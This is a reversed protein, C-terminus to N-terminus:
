IMGSQKALSIVERFNVDPVLKNDNKKIAKTKTLLSVIKEGKYYNYDVAGFSVLDYLIKRSERSRIFGNKGMFVSLCDKNMLELRKSIPSVKFKDVIERLDDMSYYENIIPMFSKVEPFKLFMDKRMYTRSFIDYLIKNVKNPEKINEQYIAYVVDSLTYGAAILEFLKSVQGSTSASFYDLEEKFLDYNEQYFIKFLDTSKVLMSNYKLGEYSVKYPIGIRCLSSSGYNIVNKWNEKTSILPIPEYDDQLIVRILTAVALPQSLPGSSPIRVEITNGNEGWAISMYHSTEESDFPPVHAWQCLLMRVDAARLNYLIPSNQSILDILPQASWLKQRLTIWTERDMNKTSTHIHASAFDKEFPQCGITYPLVDTNEELHEIAGAVSDCLANELGGLHTYPKTSLEIKDDDIHYGGDIRALDGMRYNKNVGIYNKGDLMQFEIEIGQKNIDFKM